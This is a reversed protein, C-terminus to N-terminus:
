SLESTSEPESATTPEDTLELESTSEPESTPELAALRELCEVVKPKNQARAAELMTQGESMPCLDEARDSDFWWATGFTYSTFLNENDSEEGASDLPQTNVKLKTRMSIGFM